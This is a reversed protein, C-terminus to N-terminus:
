IASLQDKLLLSVGRNIRDMADAASIRKGSYASLNALWVDTILGAIQHHHDTADSGGLADAFLREVVGVTQAVAAAAASDAVVIARTTAETLEPDRQWEAHLRSTLLALRQGATTACAAWDRDASVREFEQKLVAILLQTKSPFRQYLTGVAIGAARAVSRMQVADFGGTAAARLAADLVPECRAPDAIAKRSLRQVGAGKRAPLAVTRSAASTTM